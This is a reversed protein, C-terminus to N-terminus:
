VLVSKKLDYVNFLLGYCPMGIGHEYGGFVGLWPFINVM